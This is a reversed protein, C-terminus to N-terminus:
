RVRPYTGPSYTFKYNMYNAKFWEEHSPNDIADPLLGKDLDAKFLDLAHNLSYHKEIWGTNDAAEKKNLVAIEDVSEVFRESQMTAMSVPFCLKGPILESYDSKDNEAEYNFYCSIAFSNDRDFHGVGAYTHYGDGVSQDVNTEIGSHYCSILVGKNYGVLGGIAGRGTAYAEINGVHACSVLGGQTGNTGVLTGSYIESDSPKAQIINGEAYIACILGENDNAVIGRGDVKIVDTFILREVVAEPGLKYFFPKGNLGMIHRSGGRFVGNFIHNSHDEGTGTDIVHSSGIGPWSVRNKDSTFDPSPQMTIDADLIIHYGTFNFGEGTEVEIDSGDLAKFTVAKRGTGKVENAFSVLEQASGIRFPRAPSGDNGYIDILKNDESVYLWTADDATAEEDGFLTFSSRELMEETLMTSKKKLEGQDPTEQYQWDMYSAGVTIIEDKHNLSINITTCKGPFFYVPEDPLAAIYTKTLWVISEAPKKHDYKMPDPYRVTFSLSLRKESNEELSFYAEDQPVTIGFFMFEKQTSNGRGGPYMDWLKMNKTKDYALATGWLGEPVENTLAEAAPSDQKWRYLIPQKNLIMDEVVTKDDIDSGYFSTINVKVRVSSLGHKFVVKAVSNDAQLANNWSLLLDQDRLDRSYSLSIRNGNADLVPNGNSDCLDETGTNLNYNIDGDSLPDSISGYYYSATMLNGAEDSVEGNWKHWSFASNDKPLSYGIFTHASTADSWYIRDPHREPLGAEIDAETNGTSKNREWAGSANRDFEVGVYSFTPLKNASRQICTFTMIDGPVFRYRSIHDELYVPDTGAYYAKSGFRQGVSAEIEAIELEGEQPLPYEKGCGALALTCILVSAIHKMRM